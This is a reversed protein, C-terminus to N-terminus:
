IPDDVVQGANGKIGYTQGNFTVKYLYSITGSLIGPRFTFIGQSDTSGTISPSAPLVEVFLETVPQGNHTVHVGTTQATWVPNNPSSLVAPIIVLTIMTLIVVIGFAWDTKSM